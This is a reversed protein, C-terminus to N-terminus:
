PIHVGCDHEFEFKDIFWSKLNNNIYRRKKVKSEDIREFSM